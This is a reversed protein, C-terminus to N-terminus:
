NLTVGTTDRSILLCTASGVLLIGANIFFLVAPGFAGMIMPGVSAYTTGLIGAIGRAVGLSAVRVSTPFSEYTFTGLTSALVEIPVYLLVMACFFLRTSAEAELRTSLGIMFTGLSVLVFCPIMLMKRGTKEVVLGGLIAGSFKCGYQLFSALTELDEKGSEGLMRKLWTDNSWTGLQMSIYLLTILATLKRHEGLLPGYARNLVAWVRQGCQRPQCCSGCSGCCSCCGSGAQSVLKAAAPMPPEPDSLPSDAGPWPQNCAIYMKRLGKLGAQRGRNRDLWLPSEVTFSIFFFLAVAASLSSFVALQTYATTFVTICSFLIGGLQWTAHLLNLVMGRGRAPLVETLYGKAADEAFHVSFGRLGFLLAVAAPSQAAGISMQTVLLSWLGFLGTSKRGLQDATAGATFLSLTVAALSSFVIPLEQAPTLNFVSRIDDEIWSLAATTTGAALFVMAVAFTQQYHWFSFPMAAIAKGIEPMGDDKFGEEADRAADKSSSAGASVATPM